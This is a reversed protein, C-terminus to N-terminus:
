APLARGLRTRRQIQRESSAAVHARVRDGELADIRATTLLHQASRRESEQLFQM